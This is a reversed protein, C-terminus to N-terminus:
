PRGARERGAGPVHHHHAGRLHQRLLVSLRHLLRHLLHGDGHPLRASPRPGRGDRGDLAGARQVCDVTAAGTQGLRLILYAVFSQDDGAFAAFM